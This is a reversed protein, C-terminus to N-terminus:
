NTPSNVAVQVEAYCVRVCSTKEDIYETTEESKNGRWCLNSYILYILTAYFNRIKHPPTIPRPTDIM